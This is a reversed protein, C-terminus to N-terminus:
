AEESTKIVLKVLERAEMSKVLSRAVRRWEEDCEQERKCALAYAEAAGKRREMMAARHTRRERRERWAEDDNGLDDPRTLEAAREDEIAALDDAKQNATRDALVWAIAARSLEHFSELTELMAVANVAHAVLVPTSPNDNDDTTM